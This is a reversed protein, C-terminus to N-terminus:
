AFECQVFIQAIRAWRTPRNDGRSRSHLKSAVSPRETLALDDLDQDRVDVMVM